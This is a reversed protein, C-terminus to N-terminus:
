AGDGGDGRDGGDARRRARWHEWADEAVSFLCLFGAAVAATVTAEGSGLDEVFAVWLWLAATVPLLAVLLPRWKPRFGTM